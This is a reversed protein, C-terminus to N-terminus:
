AQDPVDSAGRTPEDTHATLHAFAPSAVTLAAGTLTM